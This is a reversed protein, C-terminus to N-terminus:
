GPISPLLSQMEGIEKSQADIINKALTKLQVDSGRKLESDAMDIAMAHHPIM